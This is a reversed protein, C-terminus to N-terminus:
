VGAPASGSIVGIRWSLENLLYLGNGQIIGIREASEPRIRYTCEFFVIAHIALFLGDNIMLGFRLYFAITLFATASDPV